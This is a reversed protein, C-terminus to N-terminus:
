PSFMALPHFGHCFHSFHTCWGRGGWLSPPLHPAPCQEGFWPAGQQPASSQQRHGSGQRRRGPGGDSLSLWPQSDGQREPTERWEALQPGPVSEALSLAPSGKGPTLVASDVPTRDLLVLDTLGWRPRICLDPPSTSLAPHLESPSQPSQAKADARSLHAGCIEAPCRSRLPRWLLRSEPCTTLGGGGAWKVAWSHPSGLETRLASVGDLEKEGRGKGERRKGQKEKRKRTRPISGLLM